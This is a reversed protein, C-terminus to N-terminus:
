HQAVYEVGCCKATTDVATCAPAPQHNLCVHLGVAMGSMRLLLGIQGDPVIVTDYRHRALQVDEVVLVNQLAM